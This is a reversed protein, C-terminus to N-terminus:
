EETGEATGGLPRGCHPCCATVASEQRLRAEEVLLGAEESDLNLEQRANELMAREQDDIVGDELAEKAVLKFVESRRQLERTFGGAIIGAPLAAIGIGLIVILGSFLRGADTVPVVDGYGVTTLTVTAWWMAKPISGFVEPQASHEAAYMGASALVALVLMVFLAAGLTRAESRIVRFLIELASFHRTLKFVRFLRLARLIRTDVQTVMTLIVPLIAILDIIAMPTLLYRLRGAVPRRYPREEVCVWARVLYELAFLSVSVWEFVLFFRHYVMELSEVSELIVAVVNALILLLISVNVVRAGITPETM